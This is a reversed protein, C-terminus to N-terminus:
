AEMRFPLLGRSILLETVKDLMDDECLLPFFFDPLLQAGQMVDYSAGRFQVQVGGAAMQQAFESKTAIPYEFHRGSFLCAVQPRLLQLHESVLM